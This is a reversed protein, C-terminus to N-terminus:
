RAPRRRQQASLRGRPLWRCGSFSESDLHWGPPRRYSSGAQGLEVRSVTSQSLGTLAALQHGTLGADLRLGRLALGLHRLPAPAAEGTV